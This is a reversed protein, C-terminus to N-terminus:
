KIEVYSNGTYPAAAKIQRKSMKDASSNTCLSHLFGCM